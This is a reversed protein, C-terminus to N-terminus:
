NYNQVLVSPNAQIPTGNFTFNTKSQKKSFVLTSNSKDYFIEFMNISEEPEIECKVYINTYKNKEYWKTSDVGFEDNYKELLPKVIEM